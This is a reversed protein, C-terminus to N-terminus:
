GETIRTDQDDWKVVPHMYHGTRNKGGVEALEFANQDSVFWQDFQSRVCGECSSAM